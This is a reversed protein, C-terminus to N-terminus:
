GTGGTRRLPAPRPGPRPGPRPAPRPSPAPTATSAIHHLTHALRRWGDAVAVAAQAGEADIAQEARELQAVARTIAQDANV